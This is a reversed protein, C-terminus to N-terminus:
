PWARLADMDSAASAPSRGTSGALSTSEARSVAARARRRARRSGLTSLVGMSDRFSLQPSAASRRVQDEPEHGLQRRRAPASDQMKREVDALVVDRFSPRSTAGSQRRRWRDCATLRGAMASPPTTGLPARGLLAAGAASMVSSPSSNAPTFFATDAPPASSALSMERQLRRHVAPVRDDLDAAQDTEPAGAGTPSCLLGGHSSAERALTTIMADSGGADERQAPWDVAEPGDPM